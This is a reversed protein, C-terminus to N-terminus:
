IFSSMRLQSVSIDLFIILTRAKYFLNAAMVGATCSLVVMIWCCAWSLHSMMASQQSSKLSMCAVIIYIFVIGGTIILYSSIPLSSKYLIYVNTIDYLYKGLQM